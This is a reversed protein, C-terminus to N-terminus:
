RNVQLASKKLVVVEGGPYVVEYGRKLWEEVNYGSPYEALRVDSSLLVYEFDGGRRQLYDDLCDTWPALLCKRLEFYEVIRWKFIREPLWELGQITLINVRQTLTPFWEMLSDEGWSDSVPLVLFAADAPVNDKVWALAAREEGNLNSSLTQPQISGQVAMLMAQFIFFAPVFRTIVRSWRNRPLAALGKVVVDQIGYAAFMAMLVSASRSLSRPAFIILILWWALLLFSRVALLYILGLLMLVALLSLATEEGINPILLNLTRTTWDFGGNSLAALFPQPGHYRLVTLWYPASVLVAILGAAAILGFRRLASRRFLLFVLMALATAMTIELHTGVLLGFCIGTWLWGLRSRGSLWRMWFALCIISLTFAPSRTLGGGMILWKFAPKLLAFVFTALLAKKRDELIECALWFFAPIALVSFFLPFFRFVQLLDVGLDNILGAAYFAYPPYAFPINAANYSTFEPIRYGNAQLDQVMTFFLGGDTVPFPTALVPMTRVFGGLVVALELLLVM